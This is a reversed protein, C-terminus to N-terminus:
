RTRTEPAPIAERPPVNRQRYLRLDHGGATPILPNKNWTGSHSWTAACEAPPIFPSRARRSDSNVPEQKLHRFPKVHRRMGSASNISITGDEEKDDGEGEEENM